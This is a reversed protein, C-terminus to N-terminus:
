LELYIDIISDYFSHSEGSFDIDHKSYIDFLVDKLDDSNDNKFLITDKPRYTIDSAVIPTGLYLSERVTLSDGDSRTARVIINSKKILTSFDIPETVYLVNSRNLIKFNALLSEVYKQTSNSPDVLILLVKKLKKEVLLDNYAQVLIDFGYLDKGQFLTYHFCNTSIIFDSDAIKDNIYNPLEKFSCPPLFAPVHRIKDKNVAKLDIEKDNVLVVINSFLNILKFYIQSNVRSNHHTYIVKKGLARSCIALLIKINNSLHIHVIDTVLFKLFLSKITDKKIDHIEINIRSDENAFFLFRELHMSVGGIPPPLTGFILIKKV